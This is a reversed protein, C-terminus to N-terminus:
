DVVAMQKNELGAKQYFSTLADAMTNRYSEYAAAKRAELGPNEGTLRATRLYEARANAATRSFERKLNEQLTSLRASAGSAGTGLRVAWDGWSEKRGTYLNEVDVNAMRKWEYGLGPTIPPLIDGVASLAAQSSSGLEQGTRPDRQTTVKALAQLIPSSTTGVFPNEKIAAAANGTAFNGVLKILDSHAIDPSIDWYKISGNPNKGTPILIRGKTYDPMLSKTKAWEKKDEPSLSNEAIMAAGVPIATIMALTGLREPNGSVGDAVMNKVLRLMEAQYSIFPSVGPVNRMFRIAPAINDYNMTYRDMWQLASDKAQEVTLGKELARRKAGLYTAARVLMDPKRYAELVQNIAGKTGKMLESDYRGSLFTDINGQLEGKILDSTWAGVSLLEDRTLANLTGEERAGAFLANWALRVDQPAAKGVALFAPISMIQRVHSLPNLPVHGTKFLKNFEAIGRGISQNWLQSGGEFYDALHRNVYNGAYEGFVASKGILKMQKLEEVVKLDGAATARSLAQTWEAPEYASKLGSPLKINKAVDMLSAAQAPAYTRSFAMAMREAPDTFEGLLARFKPTLDQRPKFMTPDLGGSAAGTSQLNESARLEQIHARIMNELHVDNKLAEFQDRVHPLVHVNKGDVAYPVYQALRAQAATSQNQRNLLNSFTTSDYAESSKIVSDYYDGRRNMGFEDIYDKVLADDVKWKKDTFARFMRPVWRGISETVLQQTPGPPLADSFIKQVKDLNNRAVILAEAAPLEDANVSARFDNTLKTNWQNKLSDLQGVPVHMKFAINPGTGSPNAVEDSARWTTYGKRQSPKLANYAIDDLGGNARLFNAEDTVSNSIGDLYKNARDVLSAPIGGPTLYSKLYAMSRESLMAVRGRAETVGAKLIAPMTLRFQKDAFDFLRSFPGGQGYTNGETMDKFASNLSKTLEAAQKASKVETKVAQATAKMGPSKFASAVAGGGIAGAIAGAGAAYPDGESMAFGTLGGVIGGGFSSLLEPAAIGRIDKNKLDFLGSNGTASKIQQPSFVTINGDEWDISDHGKVKARAVLERQFKAYNEVTRFGAVEEPTLKYPNNSHLFVPLVRPNTNTKQFGMKRTVPDQGYTYGMSDNNEAYRSGSEANDTFMSGRQNVKFTNFEKDKSTGHFFVKPEGLEDRVVGQGFETGEVAQKQLQFPKNFEPTLVNTLSPSPLTPEILGGEIGRLPQLNNSQNIPIKLSAMYADLKEPSDIQPGSFEARKAAIAQTVEEPTADIKVRITTGPAKADAPDLITLQHSNTMPDLGDYKAHLREATLAVSNPQLHQSELSWINNQTPKLLNSNRADILAEERNLFKGDQNVYGSDQSKWTVEQEPMIEAVQAHSRGRPLSYVKGSKGRMAPGYIAGVENGGILNSLARAGPRILPLGAGLAGFSIDEFDTNADVVGGLLGGVASQALTNRLEPLISGGETRQYEPLDRLKGRQATEKAAEIMNQDVNQLEAFREPRAVNGMSPSGSPVFTPPELQGIDIFPQPKPNSRPIGRSLVLGPMEAEIFAIERSPRAQTLSNTLPPEGGIVPVDYAARKEPANIATYRGEGMNIVEVNPNPSELMMWHRDSPRTVPGPLALQGNYVDTPHPIIPEGSPIFGPTRRADYPLGLMPGEPPLVETDLTRAGKPGSLSPLLGGLLATAAMTAAQGTGENEHLGYELAAIPTTLAARRALGPLTGIGSLTGGLVAGEVAAEPGYKIGGVAGQTINGALVQGVRGAGAVKAVRAAGAYPVLLAALEPLLGQTLMNTLNEGGTAETTLQPNPGWMPMEPVDVQAEPHVQFNAISELSGGLSNVARPILNTLNKGLIEGYGATEPPAVAPADSLPLALAELLNPNM